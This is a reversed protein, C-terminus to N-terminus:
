RCLKRCRGMKSVSCPANWDRIAAIQAFIHAMAKDMPYQRVIDGDAERRYFALARDLKGTRDFIWGRLSSEAIRRNRLDKYSLEQFKENSTAAYQAWYVHFSFVGIALAVFVWRLGRLGRNTTTSGLRRKVARPLDDPIVPSKQSSRLWSRLLASFLLLIILFFGGVYILTLIAPLREPVPAAAPTPTASQLLLLLSM